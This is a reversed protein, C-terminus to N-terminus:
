LHYNKLRVFTPLSSCDIKEIFSLESDIVKFLHFKDHVITLFYTEFGKVMLNRYNFLSSFDYNLAHIIISDLEQVTVEHEINFEYPFFLLLNKEKELMNLANFIDKELCQKRVGEFDKKIKVLDALDRMRFAVHIQTVQIEGDPSKCEGITTIGDWFKSIRYSFLNSAQLRSTASLLKFDIEYNKAIADSQGNSEDTTKSFDSQGKERFHLSANLLELLYIEYNSKTEGEVFGNIITAPPLQQFKLRPDINPNLNDCM